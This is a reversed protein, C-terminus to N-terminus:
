PKPEMESHVKAADPFILRVFSRIRAAHTKVKGGVKKIPTAPLDRGDHLAPLGKL